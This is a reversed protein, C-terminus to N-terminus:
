DNPTMWSARGQKNTKITSKSPKEEKSIDIYTQTGKWGGRWGGMGGEM